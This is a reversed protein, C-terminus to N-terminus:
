AIGAATAGQVGLDDLNELLMARWPRLPPDVCQAGSCFSRRTPRTSLFEARTSPARSSLRSFDGSAKVASPIEGRFAPVDKSEQTDGDRSVCAAGRLSLPRCDLPQKVPVTIRTLPNPLVIPVRGAVRNPVLEISDLCISGRLHQHRV